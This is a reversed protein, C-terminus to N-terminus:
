RRFLGRGPTFPVDLTSLLGPPAACVAPIANLARMGTALCGGSNADRDRAGRFTTEQTINPSGEIVVRYADNTVSTPRPWHPAVDSGIRNVHELVLKPEGGVWGRIEFRIAACRGPEITGQAYRIPQEAPWKEWVTDIRDLQVGVAHAIMPLTHGWAFILLEPEELLCREDLPAGFGMPSMDGAYTSYDLIESIRLRDVRACASLLVLPLLDNAFGPDIGTTFCSTQGAMCADVLPQLIAPNCAAPYVFPTMATSVVNKGARLAKSMNELNAQLYMATPGFYAVADAPVALARDVDCTAVIGTPPLGLLDGLDRGDKQPDHVIVGALELEPHDLLERLVLKGVFGTGWVIVRTPVRWRLPYCRRM